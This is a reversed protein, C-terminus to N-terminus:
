AARDIGASRPRLDGPATHGDESRQQSHPLFMHFTAGQDIAATAWVRGRHSEVIRRVLALGIGAGKFRHERHLREFMGFLKSAHGEDFGVGNDRVYFEWGGEVLCWGVEIESVPQGSSYKMANDLLNVWVERMLVPDCPVTPMAGQINWVVEQDPFTRELDQVVQWLMPELDTWEFSLADRGLRAFSLMGEILARMKGAAEIMKDCYAASAATRGSQLDDRLLEAYSAMHRLPTRLDHSLAYSFEELAQYSEELKRTREVVMRNLEENHQRKEEFQAKYFTVDQVSWILPPAFGSDSPIPLGRCRVWRQAGHTGTVKFEVQIESGSELRTACAQSVRERDDPDAYSLLEPLGRPWLDPQLGLMRFVEESWQAQGTEDDTEIRGLRALRQAEELHEKLRATRHDKERRQTVDSQISLYAYLAGSHDRIPEINLSVLYPEGSKRYNVLEFGSASSGRNLLRSLQELKLRDTNPGHLLEGPRKGKCEALSWGTVRTYTANVWRIRRREDTVVVMNESSDAIRQLTELWQELDLSDRVPDSKLIRQRSELM